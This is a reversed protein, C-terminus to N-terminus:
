DASFLSIYQIKPDTGCGSTMAPDYTIEVELQTALATLTLSMIGNETSSTPIRFPMVAGDTKRKLVVTRCIPNEHGETRIVTGRVTTSAAFAPGALLTACALVILLSQTLKM